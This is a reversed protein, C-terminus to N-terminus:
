SVQDIAWLCSGGERREAELNDSVWPAGTPLPRDAEGVSGQSRSVAADRAAHAQIQEIERLARAIHERCHEFAAHDAMISLATDLHSRAKICERIM